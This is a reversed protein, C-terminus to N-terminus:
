SESRGFEAIHTQGFERSDAAFQPQRDFAVQVKDGVFHNRRVGLFGPIATVDDGLAIEPAEVAYERGVATRSRHAAPAPLVARTTASPISHTSARLVFILYGLTSSTTSM